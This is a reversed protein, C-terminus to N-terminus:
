AFKWRYIGVVILILVLLGAIGGVTGGIIADNNSKPAAFFLCICCLELYISTKSINLSLKKYIKM